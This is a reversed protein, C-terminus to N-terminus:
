LATWDRTELWLICLSFGNVCAHMAVGPMLRHTQRYLYGLVLGLFFLPIPDPGHNWHALAFLLASVFMPWYAPRAGPYPLPDIPETPMSLKELWGQLLVRFLLEEVVPAAVVAAITAAVFNVATHDESLMTVLPHSTPRFLKSLMFQLLFVPSSTALFAALGVRLDSPIRRVHWGVDHRRYERRLWLIRLGLICGFLEGVGFAAVVWPDEPSEARSLFQALGVALQSGVVLAGFFLLVDIVNWPVPRRRRYPVLEHGAAIIGAFSMWLAACLGTMICFLAISLPAPTTQM